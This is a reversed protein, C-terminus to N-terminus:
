IMKSGSSHVKPTCCLWRSIRSVDRLGSGSIDNADILLTPVM